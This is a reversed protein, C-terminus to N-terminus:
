CAGNTNEHFRDPQGTTDGGSFACEAVHNCREVGEFYEIGIGTHMAQKGMILCDESINGRTEARRDPPAVTFDIPRCQSLQNENIETGPPIQFFDQVGSDTLLPLAEFPRASFVVAIKQSINGQKKLGVCATGKVM